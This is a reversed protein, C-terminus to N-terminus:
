SKWTSFFTKSQYFYWMARILYNLTTFLKLLHSIEILVLHSFRRNWYYAHGVLYIKTMGLFPIMIGTCSFVARTGFAM